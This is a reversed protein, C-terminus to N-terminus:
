LSIFIKVHDEEEMLKCLELWASWFCPLINLVKIFIEKAEEKKMTEKLVLGYLYLNLENLQNSEYLKGLEMQILSLEPNVSSKSNGEKFVLILILKRYVMRM